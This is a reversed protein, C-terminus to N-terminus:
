ADQCNERGEVVLVSLHREGLYGPARSQWQRRGMTKYALKGLPASTRRGLPSQTMPRRKHSM